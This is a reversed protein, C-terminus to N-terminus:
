ASQKIKNTKEKTKSLKSTENAEKEEKSKVRRLLERMFDIQLYNDNFWKEDMKLALFRKKLLNFLRIQQRFYRRSSTDFNYFAEKKLRKFYKYEFYLLEEKSFKALVEDVKIKLDILLDKQNTLGMIREAQEICPSTDSFSALAKKYVVEDINDIIDTLSPYAYLISKIYYDM